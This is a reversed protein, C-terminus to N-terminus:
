MSKVLDVRLQFPGGWGQHTTWGEWHIPNGPSLPLVQNRLLVFTPPAGLSGSCIQPHLIRCGSVKETSVQQELNEIGVKSAELEGAVHLHKKQTPSHLFKAQAQCLTWGLSSNIGSTDCRIYSRVLGLDIKLSPCSAESWNRHTSLGFWVQQALASESSVHLILRALPKSFFFHLVREAKPCTSLKELFWSSM